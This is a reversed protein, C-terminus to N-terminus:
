EFCVHNIQTPFCILPTKKLFPVQILITEISLLLQHHLGNTGMSCHTVTSFHSLDLPKLNQLLLTLAASESM